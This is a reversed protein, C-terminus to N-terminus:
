RRSAQLEDLYDSWWQAMRVREDWYPSRHYIGRVDGSSHALAREIADPNWKGSENLLSSATSRFGHATMTDGGYGMRRLASNIGNESMPKSRGHGSPFVYRGNGTVLRAENLIQVVQRSLPVHHPKRQKMRSAPITWVLKELDIESWEMQRLEGPRQFLHAMLLMAWRTTPYGRYGDIDRLLQGFQAAEVIAAHHKTTPAILGGRLLAAPDQHARATQVAYRFVQSAFSQLRRATERKGLREVKKLAALLEHPTIGAVPLSGIEPTLWELLWRGKSMTAVARGEKEAKELYEEALARFSNESGLRAAIKAARKARSPDVGHGLQDRAKDRAVRADKLSVDPYPGFSLKQEKGNVRYKMRWLKSGGPTVLLYLGKSDALKRPKHTAKASRITTDSLAM